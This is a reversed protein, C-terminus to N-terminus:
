SVGHFRRLCARLAEIEAATPLAHGTGARGVKLSAAHVALTLAQELPEGLALRGALVGAVVDGAGTTDVVNTRPAAISQSGNASELRAGAAGLTTIRVPVPLDAYAEAEQANVILIDTFPLSATFGPHVPSPNLLTHHGLAKARALADSTLGVDLNGQLLVLSEPELADLAALVDPRPLASVASRTTVILNEGAPGVVILSEDSEGAHRLLWQEPLGEDALFSRLRDGADDSGLMTLFAISAGTRAAMVAQNLGKGGPEGASRTALVSEGEVPLRDVRYFRDITANGIVLLKM